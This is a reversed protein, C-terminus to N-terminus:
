EGAAAPPAFSRQGLERDMMFMGGPAGSVLKLKQLIEDATAEEEVQENIYWQLFVETARDKLSTATEILTEILATVKQEHALVDEFIAEPSAWTAPPKAVADYEVRGGRELVYTAFKEAHFMEEKAQAGMWTAFGPLNKAALDAQMAMYLYASYLEANIQANIALTMEDKLMAM